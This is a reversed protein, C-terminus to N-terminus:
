VEKRFVYDCFTTSKIIKSIMSFGCRQFMGEVIWDFTSYEELLHNEADRTLGDDGKSGIFSIMERFHTTYESVPFSFIVDSLYIMGGSNLSRAMHYIAVAKWFDPLHHFSVQLIFADVPNPVSLYELIGKNVCFINNIGNAQIKEDLLKLMVPSIDVAFVQKCYKSLEVTFFGSGCGLDAIISQPNLKLSSAITRSKELHNNELKGNREDWKKAREYDLFTGSIPKKENYLM